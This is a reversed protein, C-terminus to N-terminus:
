QRHLLVKLFSNNDTLASSSIYFTDSRCILTPLVIDPTKCKSEYTHSSMFVETRGHLIKMM